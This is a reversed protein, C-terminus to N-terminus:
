GATIVVQLFGPLAPPQVEPNATCFISLWDTCVPQSKKHQKKLRQKHQRRAASGRLIVSRSRGAAQALFM